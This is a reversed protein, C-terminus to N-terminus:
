PRKVAGPAARVTLIYFFAAESMAVEEGQLLV